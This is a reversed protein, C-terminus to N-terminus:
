LFIGLGKCIKGRIVSCPFVTSLLVEMYALSKLPRQGNKEPLTHKVYLPNNHLSSGRPHPNHLGAYETNRSM